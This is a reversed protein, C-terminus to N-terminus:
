RHSGVQEHAADVVKTALEAYEARYNALPHDPKPAFYDEPDLGHTHEYEIFMKQLELMRKIMEQKDSM